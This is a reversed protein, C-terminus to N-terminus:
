QRTVWTAIEGHAFPGIKQKRLVGDKDILVSYPLAGAPNGLAVSSDRPGIEDWLQPYEMKFRDIFTKAADPEDLAIGVVLIDSQSTSFDVLEPIEKICPGCWSAWFNILMPKGGAVDALSQKGGNFDNLTLSPITEGVSAVQLDAPPTPATVEFGKQLVQQGTDSQWVPHRDGMAYLAILGLAVGAVAVWLYKTIPRM